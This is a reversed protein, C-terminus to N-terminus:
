SKRPSLARRNMPRGIALGSGAPQGVIIAAIQETSGATLHPEFAVALRDAVPAFGAGDATSQAAGKLMAIVARTDHWAAAGGVAQMGVVEDVPLVAAGGFEAIQHQHAREVVAHM